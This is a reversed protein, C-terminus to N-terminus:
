GNNAGFSLALGEYTLLDYLNEPIIKIRGRYFIDRLQTFCPIARTTIEIGYFERGKIQTKVLKPYSKCYHQLIMFVFLLYEIRALSQKLFLRAKGGLNQKQM